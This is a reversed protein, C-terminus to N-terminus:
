HVRRRRRRWGELSITGQYLARGLVAGAAGARRMAELDRVDRVGGSGLIRLRTSACVSRLTEIDPGSGTGDNGVSTVLATAAGAAEFRRLADILRVGESERWGKTVLIGDRYDAAVVIRDPGYECLLRSLTEPERYALTGLIVRSVGMGLRSRADEESRIGGGLEVPVRSQAVIDRVVSLNSGTDFVADLDVIHLGDAGESAWRKATERPDGDWTTAREMEGRVLTVARGRHLDIAAWIEMDKVSQNMWGNM